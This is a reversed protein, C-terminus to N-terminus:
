VYGIHESSVERAWRDAELIEELSPRAVSNHKGMIHEIIRPIDLFGIKGDLFSQVAVENVANLVAPMTGGIELADYALALCPFRDVQPEEFTLTGISALDLTETLSEMREPYTMAFQIPLRMDAVGLQALVSGDIFEVMSHVISQRHVLVDISALDIDFLFHAEIVEFGKNMFTASDITIKKGMEWNPHALAMEPTATNMEEFSCDIFPGGSATLIIRKLAKREDRICQFIASHESDIPLISVGNERAAEMVLEGGVVLSEKNALGLTKKSQIASLTPVLGVSGVLNNIIMDASDISAVENLGESGTVVRVPMGDLASKVYGCLSEEAICVLEPCFEKAQEVLLEANRNASLASVKFKDPYTRVIDLTQTGLSGTSGLISISKM